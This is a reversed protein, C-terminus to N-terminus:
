PYVQASHAAEAQLNQSFGVDHVSAWSGVLNGNGNASSGDGNGNPGNVTDSVDSGNGNVGNAGDGAGSPEAKMEMCTNILQKERM